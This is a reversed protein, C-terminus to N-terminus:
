QCESNSHTVVSSFRNQYEASTIFSCVMGLFNNPERNNLVNLWFQYGAEEPDRKLYGFYQMLVFSSNYQMDKFVQIEIMDRVVQARTKRGNRLDDMAQAEQNGALDHLGAGTYMLHVFDEPTMTEPWRQLFEPRKVWEDAFADKSAELNANAILRSRDATFEAYTPRRRLTGAYLRYIFSGTLQFENEIFFAASVGTRRENICAANAGCQTIQNTWYSLGGADPERNLFDLYHQQVFFQPTDLPNVLPQTVTFIRDGITITGVRPTGTNNPAVTYSITGNSNGVSTGNVNIFSSHSVAAWGCNSQATINFSGSGGNDTFAQSYSSLTYLCVTPNQLARLVNLRGGTLVLGSWQPLVDVTNLLTAKLSAASLTPNYASLLAAAGTVHPSAMSTGNLFVYNNNPWTSLIGVGPAALDVTTAGYSSFGAKNDSQDSAAVSIISPSDYTAPYFPTADNNSNGNGAAMVNLIGANGAADIADKLAQDYSPAEPAGGWSSNTVRVNIGRGRMMAAYRFAEVVSASSGNGAQDHSKIAMIRVNWNVGVVGKSNNGVAGITGSTHTGHGSDDLPNSDHNITDVGYVDDVYGNGDDDVGNGPIEGPNHWMNAALDEHNYDVGLDIDAVVVTASGTTLDWAAPAQIKTLGYLESYRPDNPTALSKYIYNPEVTEVEPLEQYRAMGEEVRMGEPLRVHQWGTFSSFDQAVKAGVKEHARSSMKLSRSNERLKVLLEGEVFNRATSRSTQEEKTFGQAHFLAATVVLALFCLWYRTRKLM